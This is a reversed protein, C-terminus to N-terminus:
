LRDLEPDIDEAWHGLVTPVVQQEIKSSPHNADLAFPTRQVAGGPDDAYSNASGAM